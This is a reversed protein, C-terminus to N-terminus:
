VDDLYNAGFIERFQEVTWGQESMAKLQGVKHLYDMVDANQHVSYKGFIHCREHCLLVVLGYKESKNRNAAGFIHHRDLKDGNGNRGCLFCKKYDETNDGGNM